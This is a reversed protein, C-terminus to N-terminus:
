GRYVNVDNGLFWFVFLEGIESRQPDNWHAQWTWSWM